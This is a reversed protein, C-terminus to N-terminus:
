GCSPLRLTSSMHPCALAVHTSVHIQLLCFLWPCLSNCTLLRREQFDLFSSLCNCYIAEWPKILDLAKRLVFSGVKCKFPLHLLFSKLFADGPKQEPQSHQGRALGMSWSTSCEKDEMHCVSECNELTWSCNAESFCLKFITTIMSIVELCPFYHETNM